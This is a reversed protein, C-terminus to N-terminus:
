YVEIELGGITVNGARAVITVLLTEDNEAKIDELLDSIGLRLEADAEMVGNGMNGIKHPLNAFSGAFNSAEPGVERHDTTNIYVDFKIYTDRKLETIDVRLVEEKKKKVTKSSPANERKVTAFMASDLAFPFTTNTTAKMCDLLMKNTNTIPTPKSHLWPISVEEYTYGLSESMLCDKVKVRVLQANEDFFLFETSLYDPDDFDKHGLRKWISWMRDVNAHHVFFLPDRGSSYFAGMDEGYPEKPDGTWSHVSVHPGIEFTGSGPNPEDGARYPKGLFM